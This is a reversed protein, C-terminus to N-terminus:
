ISEKGKKHAHIQEKRLIAPYQIKQSQDLAIQNEILGSKVEMFWDGGQFHSGTLNDSAAVDLGTLMAFTKVFEMGKLGKGVECGYLFVDADDNFYLRWQSLYPEARNLSDITVAISNYMMVGPQGELFIHLSNVPACHKLIKTISRLPDNTNKLFVIRTGPTLQKVLLDVSPLSPDLVAVTSGTNEQAMAISGQLLSSVIFLLVGCSNLISGSRNSKGEM